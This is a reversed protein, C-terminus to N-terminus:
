RIRQRRMKKRCLSCLLAKTDAGPYLVLCKQNCLSCLQGLPPSPTSQLAATTQGALINRTNDEQVSTEPKVNSTTRIPNQSATTALLSDASASLVKGFAAEWSATLCKGNNNEPCDLCTKVKQSLAPLETYKKTPVSSIRTETLPNKREALEDMAAQLMCVCKEWNAPGGSIDDWRKVSVREEEQKLEIQQAVDLATRGAADKTFLAQEFKQHADKRLSELLLYVALHRGGAAAKHLPTQLDGFSADTALIDAGYELLLRMTVVAGSFSARHLPTAGCCCRSSTPIGNESEVDGKTSIQHYSRASRCKRECGDVPCNLRLLLSTAAVQGHQAAMHLPSYGHADRRSAVSTGLRNLSHLDGYEAATFSSLCLPLRKCPCSTRELQPQLAAM